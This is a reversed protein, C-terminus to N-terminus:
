VGRAGDEDRWHKRIYATVLLGVVGILMLADVAVLLIYWYSFSQQYPAQSKIKAEIENKLVSFIPQTTSTPIGGLSFVVKKRTDPAFCTIRIKSTDLTIGQGDDSITFANPLYTITKTNEPDGANPKDISECLIIPLTSVHDKVYKIIVSNCKTELADFTMGPEIKFDPSKIIDYIANELLGNLQVGQDFQQYTLKISSSVKSANGSQYGNYTVDVATKDANFAVEVDLNNYIPSFFLSLNKVIYKKIFELYRDLDATSFWDQFDILFAKSTGIEAKSIVEQVNVSQEINNPKSDLINPNFGTITINTFPKTAVQEGNEALNSTQLTVVAQSAQDQYVINTVDTIAFNIPTNDFWNDYNNNLWNIFESKHDTLIKEATFNDFGSNYVNVVMGPKVDTTATSFNTFTFEGPLYVPINSAQIKPWSYYDANFTIANKLGDTIKWGTASGDRIINTSFPINVASIPNNFFYKLNKTDNISAIIQTQLAVNNIVDFAFYQSLPKNNFTVNLQKDQVDFPSRVSTQERIGGLGSIKIDVTLDGYGSSLMANKFSVTATLTRLSDNPDKVEVLTADKKNTTVFFESYNEFLNSLQGKIIQILQKKAEVDGDFVTPTVKSLIENSSVNLGDYLAGPAYEKKLNTPTTNFGDIRLTLQEKTYNPEDFPNPQKSLINGSITIYDKEYNFEFNRIAPKIAPNYGDSPFNTFYKTPSANIANIIMTQMNNQANNAGISSFIDITYTAPTVGAIGLTSINLGTKVTTTESPSIFNTINFTFKNISLVGDANYTNSMSFQLNITNKLGVVPSVIIDTIDNISPTRGLDPYNDFLSLYNACVFDKILNQMENTNVQDIVQQALFRNLKGSVPIGGKAISGKIMTQSPVPLSFYIPTPDMGELNDFSFTSDNKIYNKMFVDAEVVGVTGDVLHATGHTSVITSPVANTLTIYDRIKSDDNLADILDDTSFTSDFHKVAPLVQTPMISKTNIFKVPYEFTGNQVNGNADYIQELVVTAQVYRDRNNAILSGPKIKPTPAGSPPPNIFTITEKQLDAETYEYAYKLEPSSPLLIEPSVLTTKDSNILQYKFKLPYKLKDTSVPLGNPDLYNDITADISIIGTTDDANVVHIDKYKFDPAPNIASIMKSIYKQKLTDDTGDFVSKLASPTQPFTEDQLYEYSQVFFTGKSISSPVKFGIIEITGLNGAVGIKDDTIARNINVDNITISNTLPNLSISGVSTIDSSVGNILIENKYSNLYTVVRTKDANWQKYVDDALQNAMTIDDFYRSKFQTIGKTLNTFTANVTRYNRPASKIYINFGISLFGGANSATILQPNIQFVIDSPLDGDLGNFFTRLVSLIGQQTIDPQILTEKLSSPYDNNNPVEKPTISLGVLPLNSLSINSLATGDSLRINTLDITKTTDNWTANLSDFTTDDKANVLIIKKISNLYNKIQTLSASSNLSDKDLSQIDSTYPVSYTNDIVLNKDWQISKKFGGMVIKYYSDTGVPSGDIGVLKSLKLDFSITGNIEDNKRNLFDPSILSSSSTDLFDFLQSLEEKTLLQESSSSNRYTQPNTNEMGVRNWYYYSTMDIIQGNKAVEDPTQDLNIQPAPKPIGTIVLKQGAELFNEPGVVREGNLYYNTVNVQDMIISGNVFDMDSVHFSVQADLPLYNFLEPFLTTQYLNNLVKTTYDVDSWVIQHVYEKPLTITYTTDKLEPVLSTDVKAPITTGFTTSKDNSLTNAQTNNAVLSTVPVFTAVMVTACIGALIKISKQGKNRKM